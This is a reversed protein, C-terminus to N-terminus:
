WCTTNYIMMAFANKYVSFTHHYVTRVSQHSVVVAVSDNIIYGQKRLPYFISLDFGTSKQHLHLSEFERGRPHSGFARGASSCGWM